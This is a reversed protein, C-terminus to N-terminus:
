GGCGAAGATDREDQVERTIRGAVEAIVEPTIPTKGKVVGFDTTQFHRFSLEAQEFIKKGCSVPCGDIVLNEDAAQASVLFGQRAPSM